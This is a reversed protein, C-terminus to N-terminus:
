HITISPPSTPQPAEQEEAQAREDAEIRKQKGPPRMIVRGDPTMEFEHRPLRNAMEVVEDIVRRRPRLVIVNQRVNQRVIRAIMESGSYGSPESYIRITRHAERVREQIERVREEPSAAFVVREGTGQPSPLGSTDAEEVSPVREENHWQDYLYVFSAVLGALLGGAGVIGQWEGSQEFFLASGVVTICCGNMIRDYTQEQM